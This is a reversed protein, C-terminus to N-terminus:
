GREDQREAVCELANSASMNAAFACKRSLGRTVNERFPRIGLARMLCHTFRLNVSFGIDTFVAM